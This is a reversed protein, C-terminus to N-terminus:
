LFNLSYNYESTLQKDWVGDSTGRTPFTRRGWTCDEGCTVLLLKIRLSENVIQLKM